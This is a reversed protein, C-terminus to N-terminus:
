GMTLGKFCENVQLFCNVVLGILANHSNLKKILSRDVLRSAEVLQKAKFLWGNVM